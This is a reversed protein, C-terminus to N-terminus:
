GRGQIDAFGRLMASIGRRDDATSTEGGPSLPKGVTGLNRHAM